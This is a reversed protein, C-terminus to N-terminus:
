IPPLKTHLLLYSICNNDLCYKPAHPCFSVEISFRHYALCPSLSLSEPSGVQPLTKLIVDTKCMHYDVNLSTFNFKKGLNVHSRLSLVLTQTCTSYRIGSGRKRGHVLSVETLWSLCQHPMKQKFPNFLSLEDKLM